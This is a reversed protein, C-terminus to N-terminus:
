RNWVNNLLRRTLSQIDGSLTRRNIIGSMVKKVRILVVGLPIKPHLM